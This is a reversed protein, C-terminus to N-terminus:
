RSQSKKVKEISENFTRYYLNRELNLMELEQYYKEKDAEYYKSRIKDEKERFGKLKKDVEKLFSRNGLKRTRRESQTNILERAWPHNKDLWVDNDIESDRGDTYMKQIDSLDIYNDYFKSSDQVDRTTVFIRRLFPTQELGADDPSFQRAVRGLNRGLGGTAYDIFYQIVSPDIDINGPAFDTGGTAENIARTTKEIWDGTKNNEHWSSPKNQGPFNQYYIPSGFFDENVLLEVVQKAPIMALSDPTITKTINKFTNDSNDFGIPSYNSVLSQALELGAEGVDRDYNEMGKSLAVETSIRGVNHFFAYGYPLPIKVGVPRKKGKNDIMFYKKGQGSIGYKEITFKGDIKGVNPFMMILGTMKDFDSIKEYYLNGDDDEGSSLINYMASASGISALSAFIKQKQKTSAGRFVNVTGQISANFFLYMSGIAGTSTGGRNFNVTLNKALAAARDLDAPTVKELGGKGNVFAEFATIRAANEVSFNVDEIYNLTAGLTKKANAKLDGQYIDMLDKMHKEREELTKQDLFGTQGGAKKFAEILKYESSQRDMPNESNRSREYKYYSKMNKFLNKANYHKAVDKRAFEELGELRGGEMDRETLLNYYGTQVDRLFNNMIFEPDISTNIYSLYSVLPRGFKLIGESVSNDLNEFAVAIKQKKLTLAYSKGNSKFLIQSTGPQRPNTDFSWSTGDRDPKVDWLESQPYALALEGGAKYVNNKQQYITASLADSITQAIPDAAVSSRGKAAKEINRPVGLQKNIMGSTSIKRERSVGNLNLTDEAIGKLPVYYKYRDNWDDVLDEKVLGAEKYANRKIDLMPRIFSEYGFLLNKGQENFAIAKGDQMLEIGYEKLKDKADENTIGSGSEKEIKEKLKSIRKIDKATQDKSANLKALEEQNTTKIYSNRETAHLNLLFHSFTELDLKSKEIHKAMKPVIDSEIKKQVEVVPGQFIDAQLSPRWDKKNPDIGAKKFQDEVGEFGHAELLGGEIKRLHSFTDAYKISIREAINLFSGLDNYDFSNMPDPDDIVNNKKKPRKKALLIKQLKGSRIDEETQAQEEQTFDPTVEQLDELTVPETPQDLPVFDADRSDSLRFGNADEVVEGREILRDLSEAVDDKKLRNQSQIKKEQVPAEQQRLFDIMALDYQNEFGGRNEISAINEPNKSILDMIEQEKNVDPKNSNMQMIRDPNLFGEEEFLVQLEDFDKAGTKSYYNKPIQGGIAYKLEALKYFDKSIARNLVSRAKVPRDMRPFKVKRKTPKYNDLDLVVIERAIHEALDENNAFENFNEQDATDLTFKDLVANSKTVNSVVKQHAKIYEDGKKIGAEALKGLTDGTYKISGTVGITGGVGVVTALSTTAIYDTLLEGVSPGKYQPNDQNDLAIKLESQIDHMVTSTEQLITTANEAGLELALSPFAQKGMRKFAGDNKSVFEKMFKSNPGFGVRGLAGEILGNMNSNSMAQSYDAGNSISDAFSTGKSQLSMLGIYGELVKPSRTAFTAIAAPIFQMTSSIGSIAGESLDNYGKEEFKKQLRRQKALVRKDFVDLVRKEMENVQQRYQEDKAYSEAHRVKNSKYYKSYPSKGTVIDAPDFIGRVGKSLVSKTMDYVMDGFGYKGKAVDIKAFEGELLNTSLATSANTWATSAGADLYAKTYGWLSRSPTQQQKQKYAEILPNEPSQENLEQQKQKYREILKQDAM